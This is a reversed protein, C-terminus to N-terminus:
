RSRVSRSILCGRSGSADRTEIPRAAGTGTVVEVLNGMGSIVGSAGSGPSPPNERHARGKAGADKGREDGKRRKGSMGGVLWELTVIEGGRRYLEFALDLLVGTGDGLRQHLQPPIGLGRELLAVGAGAHLDEALDDGGGGVLAGVPKAEGAGDQLDPRAVVA